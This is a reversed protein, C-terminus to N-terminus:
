GGRLGRQGRRRHQRLRDCRPLRPVGPLLPRPAGPAGLTVAPEAGGTRALCRPEPPYGDAIHLRPGEPPGRQNAPATSALGRRCYFRCGEAVPSVYQHVQGGCSAWDLELRQAHGYRPEIWRPNFGGRHQQPLSRSCVPAHNLRFDSQLPRTKALGTILLEGSTGDIEEDDHVFHRPRPRWESILTTQVRLVEPLSPITCSKHHEHQQVSWEFM